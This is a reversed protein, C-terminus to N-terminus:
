RRGRKTPRIRMTELVGQKKAVEVRQRWMAGTNIVVPQQVFRELAKKAETSKKEAAQKLWPLLTNAYEVFADVTPDGKKDPHLSAIVLAKTALLEAEARKIFVLSLISELPSGPKPVGSLRDYLLNATVWGM